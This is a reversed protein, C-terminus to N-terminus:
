KIADAGTLREIYYYKIVVRVVHSKRKIDTASGPDDMCGSQWLNTTNVDKSDRRSIYTTPMGPSIVQQRNKLSLNTVPCCTHVRMPGVMNSKGFPNCRESIGLREDVLKDSFMFYM